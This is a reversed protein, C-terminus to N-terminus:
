RMLDSDEVLIARCIALEALIRSELEELQMALYLAQDFDVRGLDNFTRRLHEQISSQAIATAATDVAVDKQASAHVRNLTNVLSQTMQFARPPDIPLM